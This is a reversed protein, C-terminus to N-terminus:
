LYRDDDRTNSSDNSNTNTTTTATSSTANTAAANSNTASRGNATAAGAEADSSNNEARKESTLGEGAVSTAVASSSEGDVTKLESVGDGSSSSNVSPQSVANNATMEGENQVFKGDSGNMECDTQQQQPQNNSMTDAMTLEDSFTKETTKRLKRGCFM